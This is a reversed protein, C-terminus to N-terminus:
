SALSLVAQFTPHVMCHVTHVGRGESNTNLESLRM